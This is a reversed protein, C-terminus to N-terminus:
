TTASTFYVTHLAAPPDVPDQYNWTAGGDTTHLVRAITDGAGGGVVWGRVADVFSIARLTVGATRSDQARWTAGADDTHLITDRDGVAFVQADGVCQVAYLVLDSPASAPAMQRQWMAGGNVTRVIGAYSGVAWGVASDQFSVGRWDQFGGIGSSGGRDSTRAITDLDGVVWGEGTSLLAMAHLVSALGVDTQRGLASSERSPASYDELTSHAKRVATSEAYNGVFTVLLSIHWLTVSVACTGTRAM